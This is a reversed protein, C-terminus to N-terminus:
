NIIFITALIKRDILKDNLQSIMKARTEHLWVHTVTVAYQSMQDTQEGPATYLTLEGLVFCIIIM